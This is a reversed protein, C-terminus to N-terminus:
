GIVKKASYLEAIGSGIGYTPLLDAVGGNKPVSKMYGNGYPAPESDIRDPKESLSYRYRYRDRSFWSVRQPKVASPFIRALDSLRRSVGWWLPYRM